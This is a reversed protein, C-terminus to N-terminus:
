GGTCGYIVSRPSVEREPDLLLLPVAEGILRCDESGAVAGRCGSRRAIERVNDASDWDEDELCWRRGM